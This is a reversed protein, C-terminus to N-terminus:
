GEAERRISSVFVLCEGYRITRRGFCGRGERWGSVGILLVDTGREERWNVRGPYGRYFFASAGCHFCVKDAMGSGDLTGKWPLGGWVEM